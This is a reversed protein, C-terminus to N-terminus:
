NAKRIQEGYKEMLKELTIDCKSGKTRNRRASIFQLNCINGIVEPPIRDLFGRRVSYIHDLQYQHRSRMKDFDKLTHLPQKNTIYRVQSKYAEYDPLSELYEERTYGLRAEYAKTQIASLDFSTKYGYRETNTEIM